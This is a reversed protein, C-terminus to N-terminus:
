QADRSAVILMRQAHLFHSAAPMVTDAILAGNQVAADQEGTLRQVAREGEHFPAMAESM